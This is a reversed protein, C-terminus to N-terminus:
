VQKSGTADVRTSPNSSSIVFRDVPTTVTWDDPPLVICAKADLDLMVTVHINVEPVPVADHDADYLGLMSPDNPPDPVTVDTVGAFAFRVMVM